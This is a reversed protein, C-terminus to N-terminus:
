GHLSFFHRATVVGSRCVIIPGSGLLASGSM